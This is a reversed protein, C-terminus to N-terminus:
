HQLSLFFEELSIYKKKKWFIKLNGYNMKCFLWHLYGILLWFIQISQYNLKHDSPVNSFFNHVMVKEVIYIFDFTVWQDFSSGIYNM